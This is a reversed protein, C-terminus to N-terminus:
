VAWPIGEKIHSIPVMEKPNISIPDVKKPESPFWEKHSDMFKWIEDFSRIPTSIESLLNNKKLIEEQDPRNPFPRGPFLRNWAYRDARLENAAHFLNSLRVQTEVDHRRLNEAFPLNCYGYLAHGIEHFILFRYICDKPVAGYDMERGSERVFRDTDIQNPLKIFPVECYCGPGERVDSNKYVGEAQYSFSAFSKQDTWDFVSLVCGAETRVLIDFERFLEPTLRIIAM